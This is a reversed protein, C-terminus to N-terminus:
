NSERPRIERFSLVSIIFIIAAGYMKSFVLHLLANLTRLKTALVQNYSLVYYFNDAVGNYHKNQKTKKLKM